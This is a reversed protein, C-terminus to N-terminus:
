YATRVGIFSEFLEMPRAYALPNIRIKFDWRVGETVASLYPSIRLKFNEAANSRLTITSEVGGEVMNKLVDGLLLKVNVDTAGRETPNDVQLYRLPHSFLTIHIAMPGFDLRPEFLFYLNDLGFVSDSAWGPVGVQAMFDAGTGTSFVALAGGRYMGYTGYPLTAGAFAELKVFDQNLLVRIDGSYRGGEPIGTAPAIFAADQYLYLM